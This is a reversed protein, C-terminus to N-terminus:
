ANNNDNNDNSEENDGSGGTDTAPDTGDTTVPPVKAQIVNNVPVAREGVLLYAQGEQSEVGHVRATVITNVGQVAKDDKDIADISFSYTGEDVPQGSTTTGDWSLDTRGSNASVDKSYVVNGEEDRINLTAEVADAPM